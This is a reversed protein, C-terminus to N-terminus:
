PRRTALSSPLFITFETPYQLNTLRVEGGHANVIQRVVWLGIGNGTISREIARATRFGEDFIKEEMEKEIGPGWDRFHIVFDTGQKAGVIEIQFSSPDDFSYKIANSLLNFIVQQFQNRDILLRPIEDFRKYRIKSTSFKRKSLLLGVQKVAPAVVEALLLTPAKELPITDSRYWEANGLLRRMLESYSLIDGPYDHDFFKNVGKTHLIFETASRIAVLPAKLEHTLKTWAVARREKSILIQLYPATTQSIAELIQADDNSFLTSSSFNNRPRKNRCRIVAIVQGKADTIPMWLGVFLRSTQVVEQSKGKYQPYEFCNPLLMMENKAWVEGTIGENKVYFRVTAPVSWRIGTSAGFELQTGTANVLFISVGECDLREKVLHTLGVIFAHLEDTQSALLRVKAAVSSCLSDLMLDAVTTLARGFWYLDEDSISVKNQEPYLNVVFRAYNFNGSNYIPLSILHTLELKQQLDSLNFFREPHGYESGPTSNSLDFHTLPARRSVAIGTLTENSRFAIQSDKVSLEEPVSAILSMHEQTPSCTLIRILKCPILEFLAKAINQYFNEVDEATAQMIAERFRAESTPEVQTKNRPFTWVRNSLLKASAVIPLLEHKVLWNTNELISAQVGRRSKDQEVVLWGAFGIRQLVQVAGKLNVIGKGLETFGWDYRHISQGYDPTWDKLHIAALRNQLLAIAAVPDEGAITLHATDLLLQLETCDPPLSLIHSLKRVSTFARPHLALNFDAKQALAMNGLETPDLYMFHPRRQQCYETREKLAGTDFGLFALNRVNLLRFLNDINGVGIADPRQAFEVGQYGAEAITDLISEINSLQIGWLVTSFGIKM